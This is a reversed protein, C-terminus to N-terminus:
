SKKLGNNIKRELSIRQNTIEVAKESIDVGIYNRKSRIAAIISSGSGVFPDLILDGENSSAIIMRHFLEVPKQTDYVTKIDLNKYNTQCATIKWVDIQEINNDKAKEKVNIDFNEKAFFFVPQYSYEWRKSSWSRRAINPQHWIILNKFHWYKKDLGSLIEYAKWMRLHNFCLYLAGTDKLVRHMELFWDSFNRWYVNEDVEEGPFSKGCHQPPDTVILDISKSPIRNAVNLWDGLIITNTINNM